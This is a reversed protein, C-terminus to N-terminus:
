KEGPIQILYFEMSKVEERFEEGCEEAIENEEDYRWNVAIKKGGAAASDLMDLINMFVKSTSSNFYVIEFNVVMKRGEDSEIYSKLWEFVPSYFAAANEPYSEGAFSLRNKAPDYNVAPSSKTAEISLSEM